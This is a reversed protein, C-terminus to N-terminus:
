QHTATGTKVAGTGGGKTQLFQFGKNASNIAFAVTISKKGTATLILSGSGDSNVSYTGSATITTVKGANDETLSAKVTGVGDFTLIGLGNEANSNQSSTWKVMLFEFGGKLSANSFSTEKTALGSGSFVNGGCNTCTTQLMQFGNGSSNIVIAFTGTSNDSLTVSMSGTGNAKVSYTGSGTGTTITGNDNLTFSTISVGGNGDFLFVGIFGNPHASSSSIWENVLVSYSGKLSGNGFAPRLVEAAAPCVALAALVITLVIVPFGSRQSTNM